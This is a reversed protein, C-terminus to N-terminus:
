FPVPLQLHRYELLLVLLFISERAEHTLQKVERQRQKRKQCILTIIGIEGRVGWLSFSSVTTGCVHYGRYPYCNQEATM